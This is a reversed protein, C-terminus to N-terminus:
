ASARAMTDPKAALREEVLKGVAVMDAKGTALVPLKDLVWVESPIMLDSAHKAKAFSQFDARTAGKEQTLLILREGRRPDPVAVVASLANPWRESALAEVAALSIMEGGVKAFRRARGKITLFGQEDITVIDGTDHWGEVPRELVGPNDAKLYGLMVNPGRVYLRGGEEVGEVKELRAEMGPLIRGVTGFKNFMPTNLALAPATETVGYGELIRLGFKEMYIRRTTEKVSEAGALIYRLSRFDYPHAVRAYGALFTDTGFMITANVAYILEAVTRYHLPSPYLYVRVGFVLPLMVGVTLGFSHFVPLVNFVKDERGFDIRAAAQAANALMNRHSLVVGKPVGESGSTFLIAAWDDPKREVLPKNANILGRIKDGLTIGARIDELYTIRVAKEIAAVLNGLRAREIFARSSLITDIQAAKCASLINAAGSTFNIMAPVRGATMLGLITVVAGNANPLMVGVPRGEQAMPILKAGLIAAGALLRKYSLTGSMPDEIAVRRRGHTQAAQMVAEVMTRDTSTTRFVLDSMIGYLAAGAALRRKRGKFEPDVTLKVPELITVRVKPFWRRRVQGRKLRSFPTQELGEIRVPVIEANAKDAVLAAGDYVKMLSGTVTIRGEPFIILPNGARVAEILSRVAMPKLPDLQMANTLMVFPRVWWLKAIGVDIAFVPNNDLLSLALGADLFSVHNLAIIRNSGAKSLNDIGKVEMRFLARYIISLADSLASAPMTRGVAIAVVLSAAGLLLFLQSTTMGATQLMAVIVTSGVMFAANLVNVAAVVRARRDAGAWAQVAAFTPVIFLGGAIALGALDLALRIGRGSTFAAFYGGLGPIPPAGLTSAGLDIAFAGLLVAGIVTPLLIIRGAALWAALGSGIAISISFIALCTTVVEENGGLVNKVLPPMLSLSVAGVLWFWSTVLAGWWLRPDERLFNLLGITSVLVNKHVNLDPAAQGTRPIFLSAGWCLLSFVIMLFAFHAPDGGDKAAIGGVITGLLIAIFTAGEVLANGAPLESRALHDPLIGYKIPGFLAAIVGFLFLAIFLLVVSHLSFGIVAIIAIGIESFKLRRAVVAKDYRDAFEGGLASLFFYPAIFVAAALTILAEADAGGIHFLILFVLANKLFNDSFASFFQTWFLPAFRRTMLLSSSM